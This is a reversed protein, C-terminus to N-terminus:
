KLLHPMKRIFDIQMEIIEKGVETNKEVEQILQSPSFYHKGISFGIEPPMASLRKKVLTKIDKEYKMIVCSIREEGAM